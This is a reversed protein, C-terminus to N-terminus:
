QRFYVLNWQSVDDGDIQVMVPQVRIVFVSHM